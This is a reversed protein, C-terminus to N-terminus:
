CQMPAYMTRRAPMLESSGGKPTLGFGVLPASFLADPDANALDCHLLLTKGVGVANGQVAAILPNKFTTLAVLLRGVSMSRHEHGASAIAM